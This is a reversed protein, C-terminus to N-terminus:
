RLPPFLAVGARAIRRPCRRECRVGVVERERLGETNIISRGQKEHSCANIWM